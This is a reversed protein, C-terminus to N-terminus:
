ASAEELKSRYYDLEAQVPDDAETLDSLAGYALSPTSLSEGQEDVRMTSGNASLVGPQGDELHALPKADKSLRWFWQGEDAIGGERESRVGLATKARDLTRPSIGADAAARRM